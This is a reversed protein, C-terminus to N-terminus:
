AVINWMADVEEYPLYWPNQCRVAPAGYKAGFAEAFEADKLAPYVWPHGGRTAATHESVM